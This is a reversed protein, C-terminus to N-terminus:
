LGRVNLKQNSQQNAQENEAQFIASGEPVAGRSIKGVLEASAQWHRPHPCYGHRIRSAYWRSVGIRSRIASTSLNALLPQIKQSFLESTLWDPQSSADWSARAKAHGSMSQAHKARAEPTSAAARGLRAANVFRETATTVACTACHTRRDRIDKGCGRCLNEIRAARAIPEPVIGKAERRHTQTLRTPPLNSPTRKQTTSWLQRTVWEAVPGVGRAWMGVTETLRIAFEAM